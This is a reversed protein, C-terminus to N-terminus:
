ANFFTRRYRRMMESFGASGFQKPRLFVTLDAGLMAMDRPEGMEILRIATDAWINKDTKSINAPPRLIRM